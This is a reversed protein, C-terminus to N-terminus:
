TKKFQKNIKFNRFKVANHLDYFIKYNIKYKKKLINKTYERMCIFYNIKKIILQYLLNKKEGFKLVM